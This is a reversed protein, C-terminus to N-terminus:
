DRIICMDKKHPEKSRITNCKICTYENEIIHWRNIKCTGCWCVM